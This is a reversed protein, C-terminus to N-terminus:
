GGRRRARWGCRGWPWSSLALSRWGSARRAAVRHTIAPREATLAAMGIWGCYGDAAAQVFARDHRREIVTVDAGFILQRDRRGNPERDLDVLPVAVRMATGETLTPREIGAGALAVRDTAPTLRPDM